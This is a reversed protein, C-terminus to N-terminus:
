DRCGSSGEAIYLRRCIDRGTATRFINDYVNAVSEAPYNSEHINVLFDAEVLIQYDVGDINDYSHHHGVLHCVREVVAPPYSLAELMARAVPPGEREQLPGSASGHKELSTKIGIDHVIAAAELVTLDSAPINEREAITKAFSWVKLFHQVRHPSDGDYDIMAMILDEHGRM